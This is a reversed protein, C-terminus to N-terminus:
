AKPRGIKEVFSEWGFGIAFASFPHLEAAPNQNRWLALAVLGTVLSFLFLIGFSKVWPPIVPGATTPFEKRVLEAFFPLVVAAAVGLSIWLYALLDSM